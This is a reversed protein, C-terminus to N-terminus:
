NLGYHIKIAVLIAVVLTATIAVLVNKKYFFLVLMCLLGIAAIMAGLVFPEAGTITFGNGLTHQLRFFEVNCRIATFAIIVLSAKAVHSSNAKM